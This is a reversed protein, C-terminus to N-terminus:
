FNGLGIFEEITKVGCYSMASKLCNIYGPLYDPNKESGHLWDSLSWKVDIVSTNGESHKTVGKKYRDQSEKTSMGRYKVKEKGDVMIKEGSSEECQAFLRGIMILDAGYYLLENLVAYGNDLVGYKNVCYNMYSSIGDAVIKVKLINEDTSSERLNFCEQILRKLNTQGVFTNKFTNCSDSGGVGVRIYDCGSKALEEFAEVSSVNGSMIKLKQGYKLKALNILEHLKPNNGNACDILINNSGLRNKESKNDMFWEAIFSNTPNLSDEFESISISNWINDNGFCKMGRPSSVQIRNKLFLEINELEVVSFMNSTILPLFGNKLFPDAESRSTLGVAAQKIM